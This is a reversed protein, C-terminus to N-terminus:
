QDLKKKVKKNLADAIISPVFQSVDGQYFAIERVLHSSIFMYEESPTLFLTEFDSKIHRNMMALQFEYEFDSVARLGRIVVNVKLEKALQTLLCQFSIVKIHSFNKLCEEALFVREELTFFAKKNINDAVAVIVEDFLRSARAAIDIHGNTLPDFTGPYIATRKM